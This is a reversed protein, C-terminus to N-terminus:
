LNNITNLLKNFKNVDDFTTQNAVFTEINKKMDEISKLLMHKNYQDTAIKATDSDIIKADIINPPYDILPIKKTITTASEGHYLKYKKLYYSELFYHGRDAIFSDSKIFYVKIKQPDFIIGDEMLQKIMDVYDSFIMWASASYAPHIYSIPHTVFGDKISFCCQVYITEVNDRKVSYSTETGDVITYYHMGVEIEDLNAVTKEICRKGLFCVHPENLYKATSRNCKFFKYTISSM